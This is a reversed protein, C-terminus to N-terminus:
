EPWAEVAIGGAIVAMLTREALTPIAAKGTKRSIGTDFYEVKTLSMELHGAAEKQTFGCHQRWRKFNTEMAIEL